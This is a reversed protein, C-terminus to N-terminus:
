FDFRKLSFTRRATHVYDPDQQDERFMTVQVQILSISKQDKTPSGQSDLLNITFTDLNDCIPYYLMDKPNSTRMVRRYLMLNEQDAATAWDIQLSPTKSRPPPKTKMTITSSGNLQIDINDKSTEILDDMLRDLTRNLLSRRSLDQSIHRIQFHTQQLLVVVVSMVIALIVLTVILELLSFGTQKNNFQSTM